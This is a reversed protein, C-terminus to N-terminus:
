VVNRAVARAHQGNSLQAPNEVTLVKSVPGRCHSCHNRSKTLITEACKSCMGGHSCPLFIVVAPWECCIDCAEADASGLTNAGVEELPSGVMVGSPLPQVEFLADNLKRVQFHEAAAMADPAASDPSVAAGTEKARARAERQRGNRWVLFVCLGTCLMAGLFAGLLGLTLGQGIGALRRSMSADEALFAAM